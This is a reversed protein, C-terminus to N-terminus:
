IKEVKVVDGFNGSEVVSIRFGNTIVSEGLRLPAQALFTPGKNPNRNTPLVLKFGADRDPKELDAVYVLVGKSAEQIKYYFGGPRISELIVGKTKSIPIVLLKKETTRVSSPAIWKVSTQNTNLCHVQSDSIFGAMWKEWASLDGGWLTMITWIGLGYEQDVSNKSHEHHDNFGIGSHFIEHLWWGPHLFNPFKVSSLDKLTLPYQTTGLRVLGEKTKLDKLTGQEFNKLPTGPPVVVIVFNAGTFDIFPDVVKLLDEQFRLHEPHDHKNEHFVGYGSVKNPFRIYNDPYRTEIDFPVDSSYAGWSELFDLYVRYDEKPSKSPVATDEAYIPIIQIKMIPGPFKSSNFYDIEGRSKLYPFGRTYSSGVPESIQCESIAKDSSNSTLASTPRESGLVYKAFRYFGCDDLAQFQKMETPLEIDRDCPGNYDYRFGNDTSVLADWDRPPIQPTKQTATPSPVVAPSPTPTPSVSVSPSPTPSPTAVPTPAAQKVLEGRNWVLRKGNKICTFVKGKYSQSLGVKKCVAGAKPTPASYSPVVSAILSAVILTGLVKKNRM